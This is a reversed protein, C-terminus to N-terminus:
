ISRRVRRSRFAERCCSRASGPRLSCARCRGACPRATLRRMRSPRSWGDPQPPITPGRGQAKPPTEGDFDIAVPQFLFDDAARDFPIAGVVIRPGDLVRAFFADLRGALTSVPGATVPQRVGRAVLAAKESLLGFTAKGADRGRNQAFPANGPVEHNNLTRRRCASTQGNRGAQPVGNERGIAPLCIFM